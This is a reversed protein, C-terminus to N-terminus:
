PPIADNVTVPMREACSKSLSAGIRECNLPEGAMTRNCNTLPVNMRRGCPELGRNPQQFIRVISIVFLSIRAHHFPM